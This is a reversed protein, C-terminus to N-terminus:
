EGSVSEGSQVALVRGIMFFLWDGSVSMEPDARDQIIRQHSMERYAFHANPFFTYSLGGKLNFAQMILLSVPGLRANEDATVGSPLWQREQVFRFAAEAELPAETEAADLVFRAVEAYTLTPKDLMLELEDAPLSWASVPARLAPVLLAATMLTFVFRKM